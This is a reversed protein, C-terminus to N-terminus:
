NSAFNIKPEAAIISDARVLLGNFSVSLYSKTMFFHRMSSATPAIGTFPKQPTQHPVQQRGTQHM